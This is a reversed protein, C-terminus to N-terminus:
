RVSVPRTRAVADHLARRQPAVALIVVSVVAAGLLLAAWGLLLWGLPALGALWLLAGLMVWAPVSSPHLASRLLRAHRWSGTRRAIAIGRRQQGPTAGEAIVGALLWATWAPPVALLLSAAIATDGAGADVAGWSTRLLLYVVAAALATGEATLLVALDFSLAAARAARAAPIAADDVAPRPSAHHELALTGSEAM